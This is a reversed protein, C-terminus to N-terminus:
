IRVRSRIAPATGESPPREPARDIDVRWPGLAGGPVAVTVRDSRLHVEPEHGTWALDLTLEGAEVRANDGVPRQWVMRAHDIHLAAPAWDGAQGGQPSARWRAFAASVDQWSGDLLIEAGRVAMAEPRLMRTTVRVEPARARASPLDAITAAVGGLRFGDADVSAEEVALTIGHAAAIDICQRRVYWPLVWAFLALVAAGGAAVVAIAAFISRRSVQPPGRRRGDRQPVASAAHEGPLELQLPLPKAGAYDARTPPESPTM